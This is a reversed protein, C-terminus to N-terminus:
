RLIARASTVELDITASFREQLVGTDMCTHAAAHRTNFDARHQVEKSCQQSHITSNTGTNQIPQMLAHYTARHQVTAQLLTLSLAKGRHSTGVAHLYLCPLHM